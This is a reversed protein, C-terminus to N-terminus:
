AAARRSSSPACSRMAAHRRRDAPGQGREPRQLFVAAAVFQHERGRQDAGLGPCRHARDAGRRRLILEFSRDLEYGSIRGTQAGGPGIEYVATSDRGSRRRGRRAGEGATSKLMQSVRAHRGGARSLGVAPGGCARHRDGRWTGADSVVKEEAYGKVTIKDGALKIRELSRSVVISSAILGVALALGLLLLGLTTAGAQRRIGM